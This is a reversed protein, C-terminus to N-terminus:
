LNREHSDKPKSLIGSLREALFAGLRSRQLVESLHLRLELYLHPLEMGLVPLDAPVAPLPLYAVSDPSRRLLNLLLPIDDSVVTVRAAEADSLLRRYPAWVLLDTGRSRADSVVAVASFGGVPRSSSDFELTGSAPVPTLALDAEEGEPLLIFATSTSTRLDGLVDPLLWGQVFSDASLTVPRGGGLRGGTGFLTNLAEYDRLIRDVYRLFTEGAATLRVATRGREFLPMGAERELEAISQSVAPQTIGLSRAARSFNGEETVAKFIRIRNDELM